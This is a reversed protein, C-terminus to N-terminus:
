LIAFKKLQGVKIFPKRPHNLFTGFIWLKRTSKQEQSKFTKWLIDHHIIVCFGLIQVEKAKLLVRGVM